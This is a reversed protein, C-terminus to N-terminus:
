LLFDVSLPTQLLSLRTYQIYFYTFIVVSELYTKHRSLFAILQLICLYMHETLSLILLITARLNNIVIMALYM